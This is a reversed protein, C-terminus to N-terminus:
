KIAARYGVEAVAALLATRDVMEAHEAAICAEASDYSVRVARVGPVNALAKEVHGACAACSMGAISLCIDGKGEVASLAPRSAPASHNDTTPPAPSAALLYPSAAFLAVVAFVIWTVLKERSRSDVACTKADGTTCCGSSTGRSLAFLRWGVIGFAAVLLYPRLPAFFASVAGAAAGFGLAFLIFPGICCLSSGIAATIAAAHASLARKLM